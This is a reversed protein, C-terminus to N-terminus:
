NRNQRYNIVGNKRGDIIKTEERFEMPATKAKHRVSLSKSSCYYYSSAAEFPHSFPSKTHSEILSTHKKMQNVLESSPSRDKITIIVQQTTSLPGSILLYKGLSYVQSRIM